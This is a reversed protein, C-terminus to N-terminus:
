KMWLLLYIICTIAFTTFTVSKVYKFGFLKKLMATISLAILAPYIIYAVPAIINMIGSFNLNEFILNVLITFILAAIYPLKGKLLDYCLYDTFVTILSIATTLTAVAVAINALIAGRSGIIQESLVAFLKENPVNAIKDSFIAAVIGFGIYIIALLAGGILGIKTGKRLLQKLSLNDSEM